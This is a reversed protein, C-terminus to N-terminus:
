PEEQAPAALAAAVANTFASKTLLIDLRAHFHGAQYLFFEPLHFLDHSRALAQSRQVDVKFLHIGGEVLEPLRQEAVRCTGCAPASFMVLAVGGVERLRHHYHFEDLDEWANM